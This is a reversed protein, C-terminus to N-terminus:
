RVVFERAGVARGGALLELRYRGAPWGSPKAIHFETYSRPGASIQQTTENVLQGDEYTWRAILSTPGSGGETEVSAYITDNVGFETASSVVRNDPTIANGIEISAIRLGAPAAVPPASVPPPATTAVRDEEQGCGISGLVLAAGVLGARLKGSTGSM